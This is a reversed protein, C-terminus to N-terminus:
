IIPKKFSLRRQEVTLLTTHRASQLRRPVRLIRSIWKLSGALETMPIKRLVVMPTPQKRWKGTQINMPIRWQSRCRMQPRRPIYILRITVTHPQMEMVIPQPPSSVTHTTTKTSSAYTSGTIWDQEQTQNGVNVLGFSLGDYSFRADTTTAGSNNLLTKEIPVSLNVSSSAAYTINTTRSDGKIDTFTGDSNGTVQGYNLTQILNDTTTSYVYDTDKDQHSGDAAYDQELQRTLGVFEGNSHFIPNYQFFTTQVKTGGPTFVDERYPYGLLGYGDSQDGAVIATSTAGQSYYTITTTLSNSDTVSAFGAFKRDIFNSPLYQLGGSYSYDTEEYSGFGNRNVLKTVVLLNYPLQPNTGSQTTYGYTVSTIGGKPYTITSLVDQDQQGNGQFNALEQYTVTSSAAPNNIIYPLTYATSTAWGNGTNLYVFQESGSEPLGATGAANYSRVFDPIGDGNVDVFRMGRDYCNGGSKYVTSTGITWRLDPTSEWGTGTNLYVYTSTGDTYVWDALGDGNIDVLQSDTCDPGVGLTFPAAFATTTTSNWAAGNGFYTGDLSSVGTSTALALVFDPLGDGNVDGLVGSRYYNSGSHVDFYPITGRPTSTAWAYGTSTAYNNTYMQTVSGTSTSYSGQVISAKGNANIDLFRTGTENLAGTGTSGFSWCLSNVQPPTFTTSTAGDQNIYGNEPGSTSSCSINTSDNIGDGNVDAAIYPDGSVNGSGSTSVFSTSSSVYGFTMAPLTTEVNNDDYGNQQISSLLSRSGNNGTTYSLNYQRVTNGNVAATIQSIRYNTDEEFGGKFSMVKDSRTSTAFTVTM